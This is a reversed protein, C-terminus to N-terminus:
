CQISIRKLGYGNEEIKFTVMLKGRFKDINGWVTMLNVIRWLLKVQSFLRLYSNTLTIKIIQQLLCSVIYFSFIRHKSLWYVQCSIVKINTSRVIYKGKACLKKLNSIVIKWVSCVSIESDHASFCQSRSNSYKLWVWGHPWSLVRTLTELVAHIRWANCTRVMICAYHTYYGGHHGRLALPIWETKYASARMWKWVPKNLLWAGSAMLPTATVYGQISVREFIWPELTFVRVMM